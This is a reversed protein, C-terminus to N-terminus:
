QGLRQLPSCQRAETPKVASKSWILAAMAVSAAAQPSVALPWSSISPTSVTRLSTCAFSFPYSLSFLQLNHVILNNRGDPELAPM